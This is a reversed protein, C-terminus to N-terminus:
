IYIFFMKNKSFDNLSMSVFCFSFLIRIMRARYSSFSFIVLFFFSAFSDAIYLFQFGKLQHSNQTPPMDHLKAKLFVLCIFCFLFGTFFSLFLLFHSYLISLFVYVFDIVHFFISWFLSFSIFAVRLVCGCVCVCVCRVCVCCLGLVACVACLECFFVRSDHVVCGSSDRLLAAASHATGDKGGAKGGAAAATGAAREGEDASDDSNMPDFDLM